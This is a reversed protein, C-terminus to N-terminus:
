PPDTEFTTLPKAAAIVGIAGLVAAALALAWEGAGIRVTGFLLNGIPTTVVAVHLLVSGTVAWALMRNGFM